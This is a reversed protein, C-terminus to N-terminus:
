RSAGRRAAYIRHYAASESLKLQQICYSIMSEFGLELHIKRAEVEAIHALLEAEIKRDKQLLEQLSSLLEDDTLNALSPRQSLSM